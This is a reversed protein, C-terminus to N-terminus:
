LEDKAVISRTYRGPRLWSPTPRFFIMSVTLLGLIGQASLRWSWCRSSWSDIVDYAPSHQPNWHKTCLYWTVDNWDGHDCKKVGETGCVTRWQQMSSTWIVCQYPALIHPLWQNWMSLMELWNTYKRPTAKQKSDSRGTEWQSANLPFSNFDQSHCDFCQIWDLSRCKFPTAIEAQTCSLGSVVAKRNRFPNQPPM